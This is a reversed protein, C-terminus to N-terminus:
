RALDLHQLLFSLPLRSRALHRLLRWISNVSLFWHYHVKTKPRVCVGHPNAVLGLLVFSGGRGPEKPGHQMWNGDLSFTPYDARTSCRKRGASVQLQAFLIRRIISGEIIGAFELLVLLSGHMCAGSTHGLISHSELVSLIHAYIYAFALVFSADDVVKKTCSIQPSKDRRHVKQVVSHVLQIAAVSNTRWDM